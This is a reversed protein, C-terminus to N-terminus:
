LSSGIRDRLAEKDRIIIRNRDLKIIGEDELVKLSRGVVERATGAMAAMDQQTLRGGTGSNNPANELLIKSVRGIVHRFSLDEVLTVLHRVRGALVNIINRAVLPYKKMLTEMDPKGIEYLTALGLAQTSVHSAENDFLPVDNFSDGPRVINLIQEKGDSSTKFIKLAGSVLFYLAQVSDGEMVLVDNREVTREKILKIIPELETDTLGVFYPLKKLFELEVTM